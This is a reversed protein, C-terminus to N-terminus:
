SLLAIIDNAIVDAANSKDFAKINKILEQQHSKDQLLNQIVDVLETDANADKVLLAAKASVLVMANKTQHDEAVNPSPILIAPKQVAALESISSAGARSVIIDASAYALNMSDIFPRVFTGKKDELKDIADKSTAIGNKGTQWIVQIGNKQFTALNNAVVRNITGAGLSGGTFLVVPLAATFGFVKDAENKLTSVLELGKRIPNGTVRIKDTPFWAQMGDFAVYARKVKKALWKNTLGAFANQEQIVTAVNAQQAAWLIPGSAFGGTGIVINPKFTRIISKAKFISKILKFPLKLNELSLSRQIGVIPLGVIKYGANPVREMEMKGEAGVFLFQANPLKAKLADAIAVAPFIHGGTGGGSLIIRYPTLNAM